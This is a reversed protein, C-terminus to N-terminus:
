APVGYRFGLNRDDRGKNIALCFCVRELRKAYLSMKLGDHWSIKCLSGSRRRFVYLDGGRAHARLEQRGARCSRHPWPRGAVLAASLKRRWTYVLAASVDHRRAVQAVCAGPAFTEELIRWRREANWSRRREPGGLVTNRGCVGSRFECIVAVEPGIRYGAPLAGSQPYTRM